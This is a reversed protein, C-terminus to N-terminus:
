DEEEMRIKLLKWDDDLKKLQMRYKEDEKVKALVQKSKDNLEDAVVKIDFKDDTDGKRHGVIKKIIKPKDKGDDDETKVKDVVIWLNIEEGVKVKTGHIHVPGVDIGLAFAKPSAFLGILLLAAFYRM